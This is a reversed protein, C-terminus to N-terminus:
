ATSSLAAAMSMTHQPIPTLPCRAKLSDGGVEVVWECHFDDREILSAALLLDIVFTEGENLVNGSMSDRHGDRREEGSARDEAGHGSRLLIM